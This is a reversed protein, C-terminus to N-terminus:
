KGGKHFCAPHEKKTHRHICREPEKTLTAVWHTLIFGAVSRLSAPNIKGRTKAVRFAGMSIGAIEAIDKEKYLYHHKIEGKKM